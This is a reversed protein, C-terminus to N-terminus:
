HDAYRRPVRSRREVITAALSRLSDAAERGWAALLLADTLGGRPTNGFSTTRRSSVTATFKRNNKSGTFM